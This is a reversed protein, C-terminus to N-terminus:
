YSDNGDHIVKLNCIFTPIWSKLVHYQENASL